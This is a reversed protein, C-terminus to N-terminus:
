VQLQRSLCIGWDPVTEKDLMWLQFLEQNLVDLVKVNNYHEDLIMLVYDLTIDMGSSWVLEGPYSQLSRIAYPLFTHNRCGASWYVTLDWRRSQYTVADKADEDKFIPLNIKMHAGEEWHWRGWRSCRSGDLWDSRSSISSTMSLLNRNSGFGHDPSPSPFWPSQPRQDIWHRNCEWGRSPRHPSPPYDSGCGGSEDKPPSSRSPNFWLPQQALLNVHPCGPGRVKVQCDSVAQAIARKGEQIPMPDATLYASKGVWTGAGTLLFAADRAEDTTMGEGMSCRRYFLVAKGPGMMVAETLGTRTNCLMDEVLPGDLLSLTPTSGGIRGDFDCM